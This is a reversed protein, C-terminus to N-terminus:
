QKVWYWTNISGRAAVCAAEETPNKLYVFMLRFYKDASLNMKMDLLPMLWVGNVKHHEGRPPFANNAALLASESRLGTMLAGFFSHCHDGADANFNVYPIDPTRDAAKLRPHVHKNFGLLVRDDPYASWQMQDMPDINGTLDSNSLTSCSFHYVINYRPNGSQIGAQTWNKVDADVWYEIPDESYESSSYYETNGHSFNVLATANKLGNFIDDNNWHVRSHAPNLPPLISHYMPPMDLEVFDLLHQAVSTTMIDAQGWLNYITGYRMVKNYPDLILTADVECDGSVHGPDDYHMLAWVRFPLSSTTDAFHTSAFRVVGGDWGVPCTLEEGGIWIRVQVVSWLAGDHAIGTLGVGVNVNTGSIKPVANPGLGYPQELDIVLIAVGDGVVKADGAHQGYSLSFVAPIM